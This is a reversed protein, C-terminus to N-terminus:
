LSLIDGRYNNRGSTYAMRCYNIFAKVNAENNSTKWALGIDMTPIPDSLPITIIRDGELSWPRYVVDSLITIGAGTAVLSRMAEISNTKFTINPKLDLKGWFRPHTVRAEDITLQIYPEHSVDELSVSDLEIFPHNPPVWLQRSSEILTESTIDSNNILNSTIVLAIDLSGNILKKEVISRKHESITIDLNPFSKKFRALLPALFYSAITYTVGISLKGQATEQQSDLAYKANSVADLINQSHQVFRHGDYTLKLGKRHRSFLSVGLEKELDQIAATVSSASICVEIAASSVSGLEAVAM